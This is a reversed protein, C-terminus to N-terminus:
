VTAMCTSSKSPQFAKTAMSDAKYELLHLMAIDHVATRTSPKPMGAMSPIYVVTCM